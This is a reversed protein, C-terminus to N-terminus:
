KYIIYEIYLDLSVSLSTKVTCELLIDGMLQAEVGEADPHWKTQTAAVNPDALKGNCICDAVKQDGYKKCIQQRTLWM